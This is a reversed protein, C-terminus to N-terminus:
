TSWWRPLCTALVWFWCRFSFHNLFSGVNKAKRQVGSFDAKPGSSTMRLERIYEFDKTLKGNSTIVAGSVVEGLKGSESEFPKSADSRSFCDLCSSLKV